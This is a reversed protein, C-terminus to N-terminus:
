NPINLCTIIDFDDFSQKLYESLPLSDKSQPMQGLQMPALIHIPLMTAIKATTRILLNPYHIGFQVTVSDNDPLQWAM